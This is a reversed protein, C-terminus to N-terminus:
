DRVQQIMKAFPDYENKPRVLYLGEHLVKTEHKDHTKLHELRSASNVRLYLDQSDAGVPKFVTLAKKTGVAVHHHGTESHGVIFRNGEYVQETQEAMEDVPILLMEGHRIAKKSFTRKNM